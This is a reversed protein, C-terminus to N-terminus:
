CVKDLQLGIETSGWPSKLFAYRQRVWGGGAHLSNLM